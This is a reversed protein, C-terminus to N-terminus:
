LFNAKGRQTCRILVNLFEGRYIRDKQPPFHFHKPNCGEPRQLRSRGKFALDNPFFILIRQTINAFTYSQVQIEGEHNSKSILQMCINVHSELCLAKFIDILQLSQGQSNEPMFDTHIHFCHNIPPRESIGLKTCILPHGKMSEIVRWDGAEWQLAQHSQRTLEFM